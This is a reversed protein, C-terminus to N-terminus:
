ELQKFFVNQTKSLDYDLHLYFGKAGDRLMNSRIRMVRLGRNVGWREAARVLEIGIGIGREDRDVVLAGLEAFPDCFLRTTSFIHTFGALKGDLLQAVLVVQEDVAAIQAFRERIQMPTSPYGLQMVLVALEAADDGCAQRITIGAPPM